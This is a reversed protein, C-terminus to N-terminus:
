GEESIGIDAQISCIAVATIFLFILIILSKM